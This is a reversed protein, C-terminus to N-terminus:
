SDIECFPWVCEFLEDAFQRTLRFQSFQNWKEITVPGNKIRTSPMIKRYGNGYVMFTDNEVNEKRTTRPEPIKEKCYTKRQSIIYIARLNSDYAGTINLSKIIM